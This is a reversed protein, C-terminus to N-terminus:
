LYLPLFPLLSRRRVLVAGSQPSGRSPDLIVVMVTVKNAIQRRREKVGIGERLRKNKRMETGKYQYVGIRVGAAGELVVMADVAVHCEYM